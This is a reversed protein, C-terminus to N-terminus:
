GVATWVEADGRGTQLIRLPCSRQYVGLWRPGDYVLYSSLLHVPVATVHGARPGGDHAVLVPPPAPGAAAPGSGGEAPELHGTM